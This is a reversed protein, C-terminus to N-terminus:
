IGLSITLLAKDILGFIYTNEEVKNVIHFVNNIGQVGTYRFIQRFKSFIEFKLKKNLCKM